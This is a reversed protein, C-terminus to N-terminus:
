GIGTSPLLPIPGQSGVGVRTLDSGGVPEGDVRPSSANALRQDTLKPSSLALDTQPTL